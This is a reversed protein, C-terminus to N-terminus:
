RDSYVQTFVKADQRNLPNKLNAQLRIATDTLLHRWGGSGNRNLGLGAVRLRNARRSEVAGLEMRQTVSL